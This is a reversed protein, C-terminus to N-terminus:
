VVTNVILKLFFNQCYTSFTSYVLADKTTKDDEVRSALDIFQERTTLPLDFNVATSTSPQRTGAEGRIFEFMALLANHNREQQQSINELSILIEREIASHVM